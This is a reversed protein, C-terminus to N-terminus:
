RTGSLAIPPYGVADIASQLSLCVTDNGANGYTITLNVDFSSKFVNLQLCDLTSNMKINLTNTNVQVAQHTEIMTKIANSMLSFNNDTKGQAVAYGLIENVSIAVNNAMVAVNADNRTANLKPIAVAALIGIIVIVFILEIMTFALKM